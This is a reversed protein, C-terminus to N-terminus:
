PCTGGLVGVAAKLKFIFKFSAAFCTNASCTGRAFARLQTPRCSNILQRLRENEQQEIVDLCANLKLFADTGDAVDINPNPCLVIISQVRADDCTMELDFQTLTVVGRPQSCMSTGTLTTVEATLEFDASKLCGMSLDIGAEKAMAGFDISSSGFPEHTCASTADVTTTTTTSVTQPKITVEVAGCATFWAIVIVSLARM